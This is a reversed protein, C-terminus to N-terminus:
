VFRNRISGIGEIECEVVDGVNIRESPNRFIGVGPPTGTLILDGPLLTFFRSCFEIIQETQFIMQSTNSEQKVVGNVLCRLCKNRIDLAEDPTVICPGIPCFADMAKGLLFQGGNRQLQWDRASLDNAVTFGLVHKMADSVSINKGAKGIVIVLEVEWDLSETMQPYPIDEYPGVVCSAFKSFIIPETPIPAGQEECHDRYNMGVCVVKDMGTIPALLEVSSVPVSRSIFEESKKSIELVDDWKQLDLVDKWTKPLSPNIETLDLVLDHQGKHLLALVGMLGIGIFLASMNRIETVVSKRWGGPGEIRDTSQLLDPLVNVLAVSLFGGATFPLIWWTRDRADSAMALASFSGCLGVAATALQGKTAEWRTFGARLLIAFDGVEHPIEHILIALTTLVGVRTGALFSGGVALGHAFNDVGNALLNLYGTVDKKCHVSDPATFKKEYDEAALMPSRQHFCHNECTPCEVRTPQEEELSTMKLIKELTVFSLMGVLVWVGLWTLADRPNWEPYMGQLVHWSEPLLHLFVDGLLSGAAFYLFANPAGSLETFTQDLEDSLGKYKEKEQILEDELRDVEKQLKQVSREAFEARSEAQKLRQTMTKIQEKYAEERQNAKEESVELSKLNNGVVRLEEELEVIKSEGTEAREEARELDAEVMALKRAVEDYKRDAEEALFRAEKLQNELADMREEDSLSRHELMKRMRESEDAAASAEALKTSATNLREESRELDEEILQLRRNLAAVEAEAAQLAKDKEELKNNANILQEQAQDLDNETQQMKKQLNRVEEEAKDARANADRNQQELLDAKDMANDKELKMAQMKKKIADMASRNNPPRRPVSSKVDVLASDVQCPSSPPLALPHLICKSGDSNMTFKFLDMDIYVIDNIDYMSMSVVVDIRSTVKVM